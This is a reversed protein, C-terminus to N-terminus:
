TIRRFLIKVVLNVQQSEHILEPRPSRRNTASSTRAPLETPIRNATSSRSNQHLQASVPRSAERNKVTPYSNLNLLLKEIEIMEKPQVDLSSLGFDGAKKYPATRRAAKELESLEYNVLEDGDDNVIWPRLDRDNIAQAKFTSM